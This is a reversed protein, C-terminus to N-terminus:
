RYQFEPTMIILSLIHAFRYRRDEENYTLPPDDGSREGRTLLGLLRDTHQFTHENGLLLRLWHDLLDKSSTVGKPIYDDPSWEFLKHWNSFLLKPPLNWRQLLLQSSSWYAETDPYGDPTPWQHPPQGLGFFLYLLDRNPRVDLQLKRFISIAYEYPTKFKKGLSAEFADSEIIFRVVQAIQDPANRQELWHDAAAQVLDAPPEDAVLRRCLKTCVFHATQPHAALMDLVRKGDSLPPQHADFEVGLIRKQYPDHWANYYLFHGTKPQTGAFTWAGDAVTWGTFARAVEYVDADIYGIAVGSPDKPVTKWTAHQDNLYAPRGLTHLELLERAYNENAPSAQSSTNDLYYLMSASKAVAELFERFNGLCHQRMVKDYLPFMMGAPENSATNVHFHNHWFEVMVEQLQWPTYTAKLVNHVFVEAAPVIRNKQNNPERLAWLEEPTADIFRFPKNKFVASDSFFRFAAKKALFRKSPKPNPTLQEDLFRKKGLKQLKAISEPTAGFSLRELWQHAM